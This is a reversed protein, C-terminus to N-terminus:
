YQPENVEDNRYYLLRYVPKKGFRDLIISFPKCETSFTNIAEDILATDDTYDYVFTKVQITKQKKAIAKIPKANM